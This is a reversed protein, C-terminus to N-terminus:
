SASAFFVDRNECAIFLRQETVKLESAVARRWEAVSLQEKDGRRAASNSM